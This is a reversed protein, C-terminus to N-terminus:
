QLTHELTFEAARDQGLFKVLFPLVDALMKPLTWPPNILFIGSGHLGLGDHAPAKVTLTAHLWDKAQLRKLRAPIQQAERRQVQPYWVMYTGTAFRELGGRLVAVVHGYDNKDEYSPDILVMGRRPPPPLLSLMGDFGDTAQAIVRPALGVVTKLLERSDTSHLEFLRLRDRNRLMQMAIAPSGPYYRLAVGGGANANFTRIQSCYFELGDPLGERDWLHAIGTRMEGSKQAFTGKLDYSGPGAQTDIFWLAKDKQVFHHLVHALVTHKLVDTHNGAHFAHRYSFM